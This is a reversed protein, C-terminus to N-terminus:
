GTLGQKVPAFLRGCNAWGLTSSPVKANSELLGYLVMIITSYLFSVSVVADSPKESDESRSLQVHDKLSRSDKLVM